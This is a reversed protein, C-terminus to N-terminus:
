QGSERRGLGLVPCGEEAGIQAQRALEFRDQWKSKGGARNRFQGEDTWHCLTLTDSGGAAM